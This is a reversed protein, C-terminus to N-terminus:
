LDRQACREPVHVIIQDPDDVRRLCAGPSGPQKGPKRDGGHRERKLVAPKALGDSSPPKSSNRSHKGLQRELEAVRAQLGAIVGRLEVIVAAQAALTAALDPEPSPIAAEPLELTM